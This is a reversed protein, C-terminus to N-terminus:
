KPLINVARCPSSSSNRITIIWTDLCADSCFNYSKGFIAYFLMRTVKDAHCIDCIAMEREMQPLPTSQTRHIPSTM